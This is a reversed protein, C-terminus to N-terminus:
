AASASGDNAPEGAVAVPKRILVESLKQVALEQDIKEIAAVERGLRELANQFIQRESYSQDGTEANRRLDRLVEAIAVPDGSNIKQEYEQARRSWMVRRVRPRGRMTEIASKMTERSSLQRLGSGTARTMPVKLTMREHEFNIRFLRVEQGGILQAEVGEVKGVGHAPYVVMDGTKFAPKEGKAPAPTASAQNNGNAASSATPTQGPARNQNSPLNANAAARVMTMKLASMAASQVTVSAVGTHTANAIKVLTRAMKKDMKTPKKRSVKPKKVTAVAQPAPATASVPSSGSQKMTKVPKIATKPATVSKKASKSPATPKKVAKSVQKSVVKKKLPNSAKGSKVNSTKQATKAKKKVPM